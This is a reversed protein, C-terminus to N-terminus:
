AAEKTVMDALRKSVDAAEVILASLAKQATVEGEQRGIIEAAAYDVENVNWSKNHGFGRHDVAQAGVLSGLTNSVRAHALTIEQIADSHAVMRALSHNLITQTVDFHTRSRGLSEQTLKRFSKAVEGADGKFVEDTGTEFEREGANPGQQPVFPVDAVDQNFNDNKGPMDRGGKAKALAAQLREIEQHQELVKTQLAGVDNVKKDAM